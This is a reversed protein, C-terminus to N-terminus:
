CSYSALILASHVTCQLFVIGNVLQMIVLALVDLRFIKRLYNVKM